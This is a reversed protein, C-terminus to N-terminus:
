AAVTPVSITVDPQTAARSGFGSVAARADTLAQVARWATPTAPEQDKRVASGVPSSSPQKKLQSDQLYMLCIDHELTSPNTHHLHNKSGVHSYLDTHSHLRQDDLFIVNVGIHLTLVQILVNQM